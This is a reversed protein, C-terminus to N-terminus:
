LYSLSRRLTCDRRFYPRINGSPQYRWATPRRDGVVDQQPPRAPLRAGDNRRCSRPEGREERPDASAALRYPKPIKEPKQKKDSHVVEGAAIDVIRKALQNAHRPRTSSRGLM